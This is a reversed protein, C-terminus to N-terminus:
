QPQESTLPILKFRATVPQQNLMIEDRRDYEPPFNYVLERRLPETSKADEDDIELIVQYPMKEYARKADPTARITIPRIVEDLNTVVVGYKGQLIASLTIGLTATTISYDGLLEEEPPTTIKVPKVSVRTQGPALKIYPTKEIASLRAQNIESRTLQVKAELKAGEWDKPVFMDVQTPEIAATKVPNQEEDVCVVLLSKKVLEVVNISLRNPDCSKVTLGLQRIRDSQKLFTVVDLENPSLMAKEQQPDLFFELILSGEKLKRKADATKSATGKLVIKNISVSPEDNFSVWLNPRTSKAMSITGGSVSFEEDLALDAWVWILVTILVVAMIKGYNLKEVM